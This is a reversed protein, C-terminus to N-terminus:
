LVEEISNYGLLELNYKFKQLAKREIQQVRQHSIGLLTGIEAYTYIDVRRCAKCTYYDNCLCQKTQSM